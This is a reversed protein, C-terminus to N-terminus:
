QQQVDPQSTIHDVVLPTTTPRRYGMSSRTTSHAAATARLVCVLPWWDNVVPLKDKKPFADLKAPRYVALRPSGAVPEMVTDYQGAIAVPAGELPLQRMIMERTVGPPQAHVACAFFLGAGLITLTRTM